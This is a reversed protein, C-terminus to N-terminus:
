LKTVGGATILCAVVGESESSGRVVLKLRAESKPMPEAMKDASSVVAVGSVVREVAVDGEPGM